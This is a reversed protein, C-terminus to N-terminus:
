EFISDRFLKREKVAKSEFKRTTDRDHYSKLRPGFYGNLTEVNMLEFIKITAEYKVM